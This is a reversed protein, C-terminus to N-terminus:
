RVALLRDYLEVETISDKPKYIGMLKEVVQYANGGLRDDMMMEYALSIDAEAKFTSLLYAM